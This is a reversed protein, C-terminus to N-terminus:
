LKYKLEARRAREGETNEFDEKRGDESKLKWVTKGFVKVQAFFEDQYGLVVSLIHFFWTVCLRGEAKEEKKGDVRYVIASFLVLLLIGLILGLIGLVLWGMLKLIFFVIEM